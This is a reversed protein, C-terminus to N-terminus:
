FQHKPEAMFYFRTSGIRIHDGQFLIQESSVREGNLWTGEKTGLDRLVYEGDEFRIQAHFRSVQADLCLVIDNTSDHGIRCIPKGVAYLRGSVTVKLKAIGPADAEVDSGGERTTPNLADVGFDSMSVSTQTCKVCKFGVYPRGCIECISELSSM